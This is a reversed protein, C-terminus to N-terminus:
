FLLDEPREEEALGLKKIKEVLTTRNMKLLKAAKAKVWGTKRLADLILSKQYNDIAESFSMGSEIPSLVNEMAPKTETKLNEPIDSDLIENGDSMVAIQEMINELERINGPWDYNCLVELAKDSLVKPEEEFRKALRGLFFDALLPIDDRRQRLAPVEIPIVNLRYFLDERFENEIIAKKLDKNTASIFRVNVEVPKSGGVKEFKQEQLARLLKVQLFPSMDGIEDLFLTGNDAREFRGTHSTTAGTFAGKEHGFLESELLNAPIAGCNIVVLDNSNRKSLNHIARSILEKGTGSEGTILVSSDTKAVKEIIKAVKLIPESKGVIGQFSPIEPAKQKCAEVSM